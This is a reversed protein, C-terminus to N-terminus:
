AECRSYLSLKWFIHSLEPRLLCKFRGDEQEEFLYKVFSAETRERKKPPAGEEKDAEASSLKNKKNNAPGLMQLITIRLTLLNVRSEEDEQEDRQARESIAKSNIVFV